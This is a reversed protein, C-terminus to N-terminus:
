TDGDELGGNAQVARGEVMWLPWGGSGETEAGTLKNSLGEQFCRGWVSERVRLEAETKEM